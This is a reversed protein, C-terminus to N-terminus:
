LKILDSENTIGEFGCQPQETWLRTIDFGHKELLHKRDFTTLFDHKFESNSSSSTLERIQHINCCRVLEDELNKVQPICIIRTIQDCKKLIELNKKLISDNIVDTDFILVVCTKQKLSMLRANTFKNQIVNFKQIKGPRILEMDTKLTKLFAVENEGEVYYQYYDM